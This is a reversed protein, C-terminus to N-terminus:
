CLAFAHAAVTITQVGEPAAARRINHLVRDGQEDKFASANDFLSCAYFLLARGCQSITIVDKM